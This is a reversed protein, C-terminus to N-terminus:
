QQFTNTYGRLKTLGHVNRANNKQIENMRFAKNEKM